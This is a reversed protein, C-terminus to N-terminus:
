LLPHRNFEWSKEFSDWEEKTLSICQNVLETVVKQEDTLVPFSQFNGIQLSMTPNLLKFIYNGIKSNVEGLIFLLSEKEGYAVHGKADNISGIKKYRASFLGSTIDSYTLVEKFYADTNRFLVNKGKALETRLDYADNEWNIVYDENGFWKRYSGGKNYPIWKKHSIAAEEISELDFDIKLYQIEFWQRLFRDNNGTQFGVRANM